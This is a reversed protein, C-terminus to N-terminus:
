NLSFRTVLGLKEYLRETGVHYNFRDSLLDDRFMSREVGMAHVQIFGAHWPKAGFSRLGKVCGIPEYVTIIRPTRMIKM